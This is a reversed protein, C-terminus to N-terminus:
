SSCCARARRTASSCSAAAPTTTRSITTGPMALVDNYALMRDVPMANGAIVSRLATLTVQRYLPAYARCVSSFRAFQQLIVNHEEPGATMDSNGTQDLSVTPYVYFCDIAANRAAKFSEKKFKGSPAIVTTSLDVTCSDKRGPRCLWTDPKSYDNPQAAPPQRRRPLRPRNRLFRLRHCCRSHARSARSSDCCPRDGSSSFQQPRGSRSLRGRSARANALWSLGKGFGASCYQSSRATTPRRFEKRVTAVYGRAGRTSGSYRPMVVQGARQMPERFFM